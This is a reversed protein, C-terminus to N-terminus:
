LYDKFEVPRNFANIMKQILELSCIKKVGGREIAVAPMGFVVCSEENQALTFTGLDFMEKMGNAGDDGM